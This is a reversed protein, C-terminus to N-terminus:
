STFNYYNIYFYPTINISKLYYMKKYKVAIYFSIIKYFM